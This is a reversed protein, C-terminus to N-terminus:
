LSHAHLIALHPRYTIVHMTLLGIICSLFTTRVEKNECYKFGPVPKLNIVSFIAAQIPSFFESSLNIKLVRFHMVKQELQM